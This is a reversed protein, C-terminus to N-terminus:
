CRLWIGVSDLHSRGGGYVMDRGVAIHLADDTMQSSVMEIMGRGREGGCNEMGWLNVIGVSGYCWM